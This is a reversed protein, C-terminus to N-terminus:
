KRYSFPLSMKDALNQKTRSHPCKNEMAWMLLVYRYFVRSYKTSNYVTVTIFNTKHCALQSKIPSIIWYLKKDSDRVERCKKPMSCVHFYSYKVLNLYIGDTYIWCTNQAYKHWFVTFITILRTIKYRCKKAVTRNNNQVTHIYKCIHLVCTCIHMYAYNSATSRCITATYKHRAFLNLHIQFHSDSWLPLIEVIASYYFTSNHAVASWLASCLTPNPPWEM